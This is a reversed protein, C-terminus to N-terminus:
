TIALGWFPMPTSGVLTGAKGSTRGAEASWCFKSSRHPCSSCACGLCLLQPCGWPCPGRSVSLDNLVETQKKSFILQHAAHAETRLKSMQKTGLLKQRILVGLTLRRRDLNHPPQLWRLARGGGVRPPEARPERVKVTAAFKDVTTNDYCCIHIHCKRGALHQTM